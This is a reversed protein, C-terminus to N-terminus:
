SLLAEVGVGLFYAAATASGAVLLMEVASRLARRNTFRSRAAGLVTLVLLSLFLAGFFRPLGDGLPLLYSGLPVAGAVVFAATTALGHRWPQEREVSAGTQELESKLGLYNSAGMSLGDAALNALGLVLAV